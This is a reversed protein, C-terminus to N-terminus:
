LVFTLRECVAGCIRTGCYCDDQETSLSLIVSSDEGNSPLSLGSRWRPGPKRCTLTLRAAGWVRMDVNPAWPQLRWRRGKRMCFAGPKIYCSASSMVRSCGDKCHHEASDRRWRRLGSQASSHLKIGPSAQLRLLVQMVDDWPAFDAMLHNLPNRHPGPFVSVM